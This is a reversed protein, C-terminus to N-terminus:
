SAYLPGGASAGSAITGSIAGDSGMSLGAPLGTASFTLTDGDVDTFFDSVDIPKGDLSQGDALTVDPIPTSPRRTTAGTITVSITATDSEGDADTVRYTGSTTRTEL